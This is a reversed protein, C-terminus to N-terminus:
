VHARGIERSRILAEAEARTMRNGVPAVDMSQATNSQPNPTPREFLQYSKSTASGGPAMSPMINTTARQGVSQDINPNILLEAYTPFFSRSGTIPNKAFTPNFFRSAEVGRNIASGAAPALPQALYKGVGFGALPALVDVTNRVIPGQEPDYDGYSFPDNGTLYQLTGFPAQQSEDQARKGRAAAFKTLLADTNM